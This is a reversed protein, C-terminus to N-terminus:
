NQFWNLISILHQSKSFFFLHMKEGAPQPKSSLKELRKTVPSKYIQIKTNPPRQPKSHSPFKWVSFNDITFNEYFIDVLIVQNNESASM